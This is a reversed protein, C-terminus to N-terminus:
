GMTDGYTCEYPSVIIVPEKVLPLHSITKLFHGWIVLHGSMLDLTGQLCTKSHPSVVLAATLFHQSSTLLLFCHLRSSLFIFCRTFAICILANNPTHSPNELCLKLTQIWGKGKLCLFGMLRGMARCVINYANERLM